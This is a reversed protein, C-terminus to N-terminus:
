KWFDHDDKKAEEEKSREYEGKIWYYVTCVGITIVGWLILEAM